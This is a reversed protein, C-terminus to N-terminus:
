IEAAIRPTLMHMKCELVFPHSIENIIVFIPSIASLFQRLFTLFGLVDM